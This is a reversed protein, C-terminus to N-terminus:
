QNDEWKPFEIEVVAGGHNYMRIKGKLSENVLAQTIQLGLNASTEKNFEAPFGKGNDRIALKIKNKFEKVVVTVLGETKGFFAHKLSNQVIENIVISTPTAQDSPININDGLVKFTIQLDPPLMNEMILEGIRNICDRLEISEPTERSIIEHVLAICRIRNIGEQFADKAEQNRVRRMQLRMLSAITQLNNKVRHHIEKIVASKAILQQEKKRLETIDRLLYVTGRVETDEIIPLSRVFVTKGLVNVEEVDPDKNFVLRLEKVKATLQDVTMGIPNIGRTLKVLLDHAVYNAYSIKGSVDVIFLADHILTPLVEGVEALNLLTDTLKQTTRSLFEMTKEQRVQYSNDREMILVAITQGRPNNIPIVTQCIPVGEQSTGQMNFVPQGTEFTKFVAPENCRIADEGVVSGLYLSPATVPKAEAVVIAVEPKKSLVDIFIDAGALDAFHQLNKMLDQLILIDEKSLNSKKRLLDTLCKERNCVKNAALLM